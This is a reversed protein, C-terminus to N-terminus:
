YDWDEDTQKIRNIKMTSQWFEPDDSDEIFKIQTESYGANRWLIKWEEQSTEDPVVECFQLVDDRKAYENHPNKGITKVVYWNPDQQTVIKFFIHLEPNYVVKNYLDTERDISM